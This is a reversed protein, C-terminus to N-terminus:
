RIPTDVLLIDFNCSVRTNNDLTNMVYVELDTKEPIAPPFPFEYRYSGNSLEVVHVVQTSGNEFRMKFVVTTEKNLNTSCDGVYLYGVKGAPITYIASTNRGYGALIEDVVVGSTNAFKMLINGSNPASTYADNIRHFRETTAVHTTGNLTVTDTIEEHSANLGVITVSMTDTTNSSVIHLTNATTLTSWPYVGGYSWLTEPDSGMDIDPNYGIVHVPTAGKVLGRSVNLRPDETLYYNAM